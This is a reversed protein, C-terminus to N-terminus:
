NEVKKLKLEYTHGHIKFFAPFRDPDCVRMLDFQDSISKNIDLESDAPTRKPYYSSLQTSNQPLPVISDFSEVAFDMLVSEAQFLIENLEDYLAHKPVVVKIKKWISGSDVKNEAEILSVVLEDSGNIIEWVHPSWGRGKPLDSAHIVLSKKFKGREEETILESCSILFLLDGGDLERKTRALKVQHTASNKRIWTNLMDNVPHNESSCLVTIKM